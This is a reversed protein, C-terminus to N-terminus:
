VPAIAVSRDLATELEVNNPMIKVPACGNASVVKKPMNVKM